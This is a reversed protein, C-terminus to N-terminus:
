LFMCVCSPSAHGGDSFASVLATHVQNGHSCVEEVSIMLTVTFEILFYRVTM